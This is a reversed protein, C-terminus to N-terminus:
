ENDNDKQSGVVQFQEMFTDGCSTCVCIITVKGEDHVTAVDAVFYKHGNSCAGGAM